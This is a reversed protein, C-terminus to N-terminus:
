KGKKKATKAKVAKIVKADKTIVPTAKTDKGKIMALFNKKAAKQKPTAM